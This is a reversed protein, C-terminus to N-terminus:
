GNRRARNVIAKSKHALSKRVRHASVSLLNATSVQAVYDIDISTPRVPTHNQRDRLIYPSSFKRPRGPRVTSELAEVLNDIFKYIHLEDYLQGVLQKKAANIAARDDLVATLSEVLKSQTSLDIRFAANNQILLEGLPDGGNTIIPVGNGALDAVRLRFSYDNELFNNNISVALDANNFVSIRDYYEVWDDFFVTTSTLKLKDSMEKAKLYKGNFRMNDKPYFPNSGGVIRLLARKKINENGFATILDSIDFWPYVGGFWLVEARGSPSLTKQQVREDKEVFAPLMVFRKDDHEPLTNLGALVGRFFHRQAENAILINDARILLENFADAFDFYVSLWERDGEKDLSKTLFEVYMPSYADIIIRTRPGIVNFITRSLSGMACSLVVADFDKVLRKLDDLNDNFSTIKIGKSQNAKQPFKQWVAITLENYGKSKLALAMRWFRLASGEITKYESTPVPNYSFLLIKKM